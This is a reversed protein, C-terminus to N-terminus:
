ESVDDKVEEEKLKFYPPPEPNETTPVSPVLDYVDLLGTKLQVALQYAMGAPVVQLVPGLQFTVPEEWEIRDKLEMTEM